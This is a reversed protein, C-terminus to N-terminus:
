SLSSWRSSSIRSPACVFYTNDGITLPGGAVSHGHGTFIGAPPTSITRPPPAAPPEIDAGGQIMMDELPDDDESLPQLMDNQVGFPLRLDDGALVTHRATVDGGRSSAVLVMGLCGFVITGAAAAFLVRRRDARAKSQQREGRWMAAHTSVLGGEM